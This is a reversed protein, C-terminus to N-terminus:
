AVVVRRQLQSDLGHAVAGVARPIRGGAPEGDDLECVGDVLREGADPVRIDVKGAQVRGDPRKGRSGLGADTDGAAGRLEAYVEQESLGEDLGLTRAM